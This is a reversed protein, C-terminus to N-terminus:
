GGFGKLVIEGKGDCQASYKDIRKFEFNIKWLGTKRDAALNESQLVATQAETHLPESPQNPLSKEEMIESDSSSSDSVVEATLTPRNTGGMGQESHRVEEKCTSSQRLPSESATPAFFKSDGTM